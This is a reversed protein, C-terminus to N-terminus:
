VMFIATKVVRAAVALAKVAGLIVNATPLFGAGLFAAALGAAVLATLGALAATELAAAAVLFTAAGLFAKTLGKMFFSGAASALFTTSFFAAGTLFATTLFAAGTFFAATLATLFAGAGTLFATLATTLFAGAAFAGAFFAVAGALRTVAEPPPVMGEMAMGYSPAGASKSPDRTPSTPKSGQKREVLASVTAAGYKLPIKLLSTLISPRVQYRSASSMCPRIQMIATTPNMAGPKPVKSPLAQVPASAKELVLGKSARPAAGLAEIKWIKAKIAAKSNRRMLM